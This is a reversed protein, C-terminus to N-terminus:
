PELSEALKDAMLQWSRQAREVFGAWEAGMEHIISLVCGRDEAAIEVVVRSFETGEDQQVGWTFILRNPRQIELYEGIHDIESDGRRVKFSFSGGEMPNVKIHIIEEDRVGPGFMWRGLLNTDLWADFVRAPAADIHRSVRATPLSTADSRSAKASAGDARPNGGSLVTNLGELIMTWGTFIMDETINERVRMEHVLTLECGSELAAIDITIREANVDHKEVTMEFVLRRPRAIELYAGVHEVDEGGRRETLVFQGGVRADVEVRVLEGTATAFLWRGLRDPDLWADFVREASQLFRRKVKLTTLLQSTM